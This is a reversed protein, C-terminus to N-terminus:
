KAAPVSVQASGTACFGCDESGLDDYRIPGSQDVLTAGGLELHLVFRSPKGSPKLDLMTHDGAVTICARTITDNSGQDECTTEAVFAPLVPSGADCSTMSAATGVSTDGSLELDCRFPREDISGSVVYDGAEWQGDSTHVTLSTRDDCPLDSCPRLACSSALWAAGVALLMRVM